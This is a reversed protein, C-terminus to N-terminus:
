PTNATRLRGDMASPHYQLPFWNLAVVLRGDPLYVRHACRAPYACATCRAELTESETDVMLAGRTLWDAMGQPGTLRANCAVCHVENALNRVPECFNAFYLQMATTWAPAATELDAQPFLHKPRCHLARNKLMYGSYSRVATEEEETPIVLNEM